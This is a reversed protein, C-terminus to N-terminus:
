IILAAAVSLCVLIECTVLARFIYLNRLCDSSQAIWDPTQWFWSYCLFDEESRLAEPVTWFVGRPRGDAEWRDRHHVYQHRVLQDFFYGAPLVFLLLSLLLVFVWWHSQFNVAGTM